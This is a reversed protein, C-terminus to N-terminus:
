GHAVPGALATKALKKLLRDGTGAADALAREAAPTGIRQLVSVSTQKIARIKKRALWSKRRMVQAVQPIAQDGGVAAIAGLTELVIQHDSGVPDSEALIRALVPVVRPDKERVLADVVALRHEGTAARLVTHIARAAGPDDINSLAQVAARLVRPDTGRLLPQLLPVGEAAAIDGLLEAARLQVHWRDSSILPALRTVSRVGFGRVIPRARGIAITDAESRFVNRLADVSAPGINRCIQTFHVAAPEDMENLLDVTERFAATDALGDLTTRSGEHTVSKPAAAQEALATTVNLAAEYDGALLLDEALAGVDRAVEPARTPDREIRLLDILLIVSLKRVNDQDLTHVLGAIEPTIDRAMQEARAGIQDLGAKYDVGVFPRENYTLLLEEMSSWM